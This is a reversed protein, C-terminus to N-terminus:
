LTVMERFVDALIAFEEVPMQLEITNGSSDDFIMTLEKGKHIAMTVDAASITYTTVRADNM